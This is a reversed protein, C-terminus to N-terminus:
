VLLYELFLNPAGRFKDLIPNTNNIDTQNFNNIESLLFNIAKIRKEIPTGTMKRSKLKIRKELSLAQKKNLNKIFGYFKWEGSEKNIKTYKAGGVLEGNHQRIRRNHNNTIGIYTKNHITHVLIYVLYNNSQEM